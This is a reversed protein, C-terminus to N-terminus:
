PIDLSWLLENDKWPEPVEQDEWRLLFLRYEHEGKRLEVRSIGKAGPYVWFSASLGYESHGCEKQIDLCLPFQGLRVRDFNQIDM